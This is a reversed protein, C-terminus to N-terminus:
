DVYWVQTHLLPELTNELWDHFEEFESYKEASQKLYKFVRPLEKLYGSKGEQVGLRIFLGLVKLHRQMGILDFWIVFKNKDLPTKQLHNTNLQQLYFDILENLLHSPLDFYCDKLLSVLDYAIPGKVADQFDIVGIDGGEEGNLMLLNRSHFDRHMTVQPQELASEILRQYVTDLMAPVPTQLQYELLWIEFLRMERMLFARDFLCLSESSTQQIVLIQDIAKQYHSVHCEQQLLDFLHTEGFDELLMYGLDLDACFVKPVKVEAKLWKEALDIFINNDIRETPSAVLIYCKENSTLRFYMRCSADGQLPKVDWDGQITVKQQAILQEIWQNIEFLQQM